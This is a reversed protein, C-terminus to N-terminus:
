APVLKKRKAAHESIMERIAQGRDRGNAFEDIYDLMHPPFRIATPEPMAGEYRPPRGRKRKEKMRPIYDGKKYFWIM